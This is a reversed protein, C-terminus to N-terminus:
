ARAEKDASVSEDVRLTVQGINEFRNGRKSYDVTIEIDCEKGILDELNVGDKEVDLEPLLNGILRGIESDRLNTAIYNKSRELKNGNINMEFVAKITDKKMDAKLEIEPGEEVKILVGPYIGAELSKVIIKNGIRIM